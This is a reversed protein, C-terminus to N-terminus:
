RKRTSRDRTPSRQLFPCTREFYNELQVLQAPTYPSSCVLPGTLVTGCANTGTRSRFSVSARQDASRLFLVLDSLQTSRQACPSCPLRSVEIGTIVSRYPSNEVFQIVAKIMEDSRLQSATETNADGGFFSPTTTLHGSSQEGNQSGPVGHMDLVLSARNAADTRAISASAHSVFDVCECVHWPRLGLRPSPQPLIPLYRDQEPVARGRHDPDM